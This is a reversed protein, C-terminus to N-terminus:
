KSCTYVILSHGELGVCDVSLGRLPSGRLAPQPMMRDRVIDSSLLMSLSALSSRFASFVCNSKHGVFYLSKVKRDQGLIHYSDCTVGSSVCVALCCVPFRPFSWPVAAAAAAAATVNVFGVPIPPSSSTPYLVHANNCMSCTSCARRTVPLM